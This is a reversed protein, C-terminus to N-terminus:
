SADLMILMACSRKYLHVCQKQDAAITIDWAAKIPRCQFIAVTVNALTNSAVITFATWVLTRLSQSQVGRIIRLYLCLVSLKVM